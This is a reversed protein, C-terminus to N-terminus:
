IKGTGGEWRDEGRREGGFGLRRGRGPPTVGSPVVNWKSFAALAGPMVCPPPAPRRDNM